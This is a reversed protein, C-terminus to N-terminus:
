QDGVPHSADPEQDGDLFNLQIGIVPVDTLLWMENVALRKNCALDGDVAILLM